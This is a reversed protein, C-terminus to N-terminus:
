PRTVARSHNSTPARTVARSHNSTLARTVARSHNSTLARTVARSHNRAHNLTLSRTVTAPTTRRDPVRTVARSHNLHTRPHRRPLPQLDPGPVAPM